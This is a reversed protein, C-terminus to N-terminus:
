QFQLRTFPISQENVVGVTGNAGLATTHDLRLRGGPSAGYNSLQKRFAEAKLSNGSIVWATLQLRCHLPHSRGEPNQVIAPSILQVTCEVPLSLLVPYWPQNPWAPAILLRDLSQIGGHTSVQGGLPVSPICLREALTSANFLCRNGHGVPGPGLQLIQSTPLQTQSRLSRSSLPWFAQGARPINGPGDDLGVNIDPLPTVSLERGREGQWTCSSRDVGTGQGLGVAM